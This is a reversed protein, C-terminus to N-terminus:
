RRSRSGSFWRRSGSTSSRRRRRRSRSGGSTPPGRRRDPRGHVAAAQRAPRGRPVGVAGLDARGLRAGAPLRHARRRRDRAPGLLAGHGHRGGRLLRAGQLRGAQGLPVPEHLRAPQPEDDALRDGPGVARGPRPEAAADRRVRRPRLRRLLGERQRRARDRARGPRSQRAGRVGGARAADRAHDRQGREPRDLTIRAIRGDVEYTLTNLRPARAGPDGRHGRRAAAHRVLPRRRRPPGRLVRRIGGGPRQRVLLSAQLAVALDSVVRARRSSRTGRRRPRSGTSTPTSRPTRAARWSASPSSPPCARPSGRSRACCTSRPCTARARGSRTSRPTACSGRCAAVGRCLRQRGPVRAGRRRAGTRAQLRLAEDGGHRDAPVARRGRRLRAGRADDGRDRGGVRDRPRGAREADAAPRVLLKGFASRHRAHHVAQAVGWRMGAASGILCDLRTHNVMRIITPIGRGEEGVLQGRVAHFEVESSPLSRTGLKDKLRQIRFGPDRGEILFCSLGAPAQALTLFLDCSPYSCFWKHGTIEWADGNQVARTSNARVDSGGQKETMAM